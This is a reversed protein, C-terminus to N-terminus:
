VITSLNQDYLETREKLHMLAKGNVILTVDRMDGNDIAENCGNAQWFWCASRFADEPERLLKPNSVVDVGTADRYAIYNKEWTLQILGRGPYNGYLAERLKEENRCYPKAAEIEEPSIVKDKNKDFVRKFITAIRLPDKYYLSEETKELQGSEISITALFACVRERNELIGYQPMYKEAYPWYRQAFMLESETGQQFQEFTLPFM